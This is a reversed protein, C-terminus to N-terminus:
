LEQSKQAFREEIYQGDEPDLDMKISAFQQYKRNLESMNKCVEVVKVWYSKPSEEERLSGTSEAAAALHQDGRPTPDDAPADSEVQQPKDGGGPGGSQLMSLLADARSATEQTETVSPVGGVHTATTEIVDDDADVADRFEPSLPLWKSLRRFVTKKAMENWDTVWPGSGAARSRKRISEVEDRTMVEAKETGDKFRCIAYVAYVHGRAKRFDIKHRRIEGRDFEFEDNECVTDAHINAVKGSRMALEVLGKYDIIYQCEIVGRKRNEFPILHAHRGDPELGFQSLAMLCQFFSAPECEQLKPIRAIATLAVRAQRDASLHKPLVTSLQQKLADGSLWQRISMAPSGSKMAVSTTTTQTM